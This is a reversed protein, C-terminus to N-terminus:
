GKRKAPSKERPGAESTFNAIEGASIEKLDDVANDLSDTYLNVGISNRRKVENRVAQVVNAMDLYSLSSCDLLSKKIRPM